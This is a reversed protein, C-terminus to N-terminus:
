KIKKAVVIDQGGSMVGNKRGSWPGYRIPEVIELGHKEHLRRIREEYLGIQSEPNAPDRVLGGDVPYSLKVRSMADPGNMCEISEDNLLLYTNWCHGGIKMVRSMQALYNDVENILMHTFLSTSWIFDFSGDSFPFIYESARVTASQNYTTSFIDAFEFNFNDFEEYNNRCWDISSKTIDIGSYKGATLFKTLPRALRGLGCGVDLVSFNDRIFGERIMRGVIGDGIKVFEEAIKQFDGVGIGNEIILEKPPILSNPYDLTM